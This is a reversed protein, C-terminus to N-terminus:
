FIKIKEDRFTSPIDYHTPRESSILSMPNTLSKDLKSNLSERISAVKMRLKNPNISKPTPLPISSAPTIENIRESNSYDLTKLTKNTKSKKLISAEQPSHNTTTNLNLKPIKLITEKERKQLKMKKSSKKKGSSPKLKKKLEEIINEVSNEKIDSNQSNDNNLIYGFKRSTKQYNMICNQDIEQLETNKILTKESFSETLVTEQSIEVTNRSLTKELECELRLIEKKLSEIKENKESFLHIVSVRTNQAKSDLFKLETIMDEKLDLNEELKDALLTLDEYMLALETDNNFQGRPTMGLTKEEVEDIVKQLTNIEADNFQIIHDLQEINLRLRCIEEGILYVDNFKEKLKEENGELGVKNENKCNCSWDSGMKLSQVSEKVKSKVMNRLWGNERELDEIRKQYDGEKYINLRSWLRSKIESDCRKINKAKEAYKISNMTEEIFIGNPSLCVVMMVPTTGDLSEKLIRTLKSDRFPVFLNSNQKKSQNQDSLINICNTLALLSRNINAGEQLMEKGDMNVKESGALDVFRIKSEFIGNKNKLELKIEVIM